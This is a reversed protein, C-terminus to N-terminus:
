PRRKDGLPHAADYVARLREVSVSTYRQTTGLSAHGLLEQIARLDAGGDLLHTAFSHRLMHPTVPRALQVQRERQHLRRRFQRTSLRQGGAGIFLAQEGPQAWATRQALWLLLADKAKQGFPVSREKDGKGIVRVSQAQLDIAELNLSALEAARIGAGYLLEIMARDRVAEPGGNDEGEILQFVEDVMLSRPLPAPLKPSSVLEAVNKTIQGRKVLYRLFSRFASLKRARTRAVTEEHIAGLYGRLDDASLGSPDARQGRSELFLQLQLLDARYARVTHESYRRELALHQLFAAISPGLGEGVAGIAPQVPRSRNGRRIAM